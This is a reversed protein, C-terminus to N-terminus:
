AFQGEELMTVFKEIRRARTEPRKADHIQYLMSFRHAASVQKYSQEAKPSAALARKFDPPMEITRSGAYAADWRGDRKADQVEALGSEHM